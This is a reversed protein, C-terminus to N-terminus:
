RFAVSSASYDDNQSTISRGARNIDVKLNPNVRNETQLSAGVKVRAKKSEAKNEKIWEPKATEKGYKYFLEIVDRMTKVSAVEAQPANSRAINVMERCFYAWKLLIEYNYVPGMARFEITNHRQLSDQNVTWYRSGFSMDQSKNSQSRVIRAKRFRNVIETADLSVCYRRGNRMYAAEFMPELISYFLAVTSTQLPTLDDAAVHVHVGASDNTHRAELESTLYELGRSHYSRLVPSSWEATESRHSMHDACRYCTEFMTCDNCGTGFGYEGTPLTRSSQAQSQLGRLSGDDHREWGSPTKVGAVDVAEIEIGWTRSALTRRPLIEFERFPNEEPSLKRLKSSVYNRLKEVQEDTYDPSAKKETSRLNTKITERIIRTRAGSRRYGRYARVADRLSSTPITEENGSYVTRSSSVRSFAEWASIELSSGTPVLKYRVEGVSETDRELRLAGRSVTDVAATADEFTVEGITSETQGDNRVPDNPLAYGGPQVSWVAATRTAAFESFASAWEEATDASSLRNMMNTSSLIGRLENPTLRVPLLVEPDTSEPETSLGDRPGGRLPACAPCDARDCYEPENTAPM